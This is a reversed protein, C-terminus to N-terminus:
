FTCFPVSIFIRLHFNKVFMKKGKSYLFIQAIQVKYKHTFTPDTHRSMNVISCSFAKQKDILWDNLSVYKHTFLLAVQLKASRKRAILRYKEQQNIRDKVCKFLIVLSWIKLSKGTKIPQNWLNKKLISVIKLKPREYM